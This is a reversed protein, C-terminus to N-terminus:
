RSTTTRHSSFPSEYSSAAAMEPHGTPVTRDRKLRARCISTSRHLVNSTVSLASPLPCLASPLSCLAFLHSIGVFFLQQVVQQTPDRVIIRVQGRRVELRPDQSGHITSCDDPAPRDSRIPHDSGRRERRHQHGCDIRVCGVGEPSGTLRFASAVSTVMGSSDSCGGITTLSGADGGVARTVRANGARGVCGSRDSDEIAWDDISWDGIAWEGSSNRGNIGM